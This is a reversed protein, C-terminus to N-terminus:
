DSLQYVQTELDLGIECETAFYHDEAEKFTEELGRQSGVFSLLSWAHAKGIRIEDPGFVPEPVGAGRLTTSFRRILEFGFERARRPLDGLLQRDGPYNRDYARLVRRVMEPGSFTADNVDVVYLLGGPRLIRHMELLALDPSRLHVFLFNATVVDHSSEAEGTAYASGESFDYEPFASRARALLQPAPEVGRVRYGTLPEEESVAALYDGPGTGIDLLSAPAPPFPTAALRPRQEALILKGQATLRPVETQLTFSETYHNETALRDVALLGGRGGGALFRVLSPVPLPSPGAASERTFERHMLYFEELAKEGTITMVGIADEGSGVETHYTFGHRAYTDILHRHESVRVILFFRPPRLAECIQRVMWSAIEASILNGRHTALGVRKGIEVTVGQIEPLRITALEPAGPEYVYASLAAVIKENSIACLHLGDADRSHRVRDEQWGLEDTFVRRRLDLIEEGADAWSLWRVKLGNRVDM